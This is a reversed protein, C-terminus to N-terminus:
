VEEVGLVRFGHWRLLAKYARRERVPQPVASPLLEVTLRLRPRPEQAPRPRKPRQFPLNPQEPDSV